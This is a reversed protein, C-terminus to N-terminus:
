QGQWYAAGGHAIPQASVGVNITGGFVVFGVKNLAFLANRCYM